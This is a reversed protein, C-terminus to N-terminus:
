VELTLRYNDRQSRTLSRVDVRELHKVYNVAIRLVSSVM